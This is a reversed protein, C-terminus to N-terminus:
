RLHAIIFCGIINQGMHQFLNIGCHRFAVEIHSVIIGIHLAKFFRFARKDGIQLFICRTLIQCLRLFQHLQQLILKVTRRRQDADAAPLPDHLMITGPAQQLFSLKRLCDLQQFLDHLVRRVKKCRVVVQRQGIEIHAPEDFGLLTQALHQFLVRAIQVGKAIHRNEQLIGTILVLKGSQQPHQFRGYRKMLLM